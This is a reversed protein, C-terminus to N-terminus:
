LAKKIEFYNPPTYLEVGKINKFDKSNVTFIEIGHHLATSAILLDPVKTFHYKSLDVAISSVKRDIQIVPFKNIVTFSDRYKKAGLQTKYGNIWHSLEIKTIVSIALRDFGIYDLAEIFPEKQMVYRSIVGTDAIILRM